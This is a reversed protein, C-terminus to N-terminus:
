GSGSGSGGAAGGYTQVNKATKTTGITSIDMGCKSRHM